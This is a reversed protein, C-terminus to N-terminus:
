NELYKLTTTNPRKGSLMKYLSSWPISLALGAEKASNFIMGSETEIVKKSDNHIKGTMTKSLNERQTQSM